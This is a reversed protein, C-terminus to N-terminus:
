KLFWNNEDMLLAEMRTADEGFRRAVKRAAYAPWEGRHRAVRILDFFRNGEFCTEAALEDVICDEVFAISDAKTGAEGFDPIIFYEKDYPVGNGRGRSASGVNNNFVDSTFDTWAEGREAQDVRTADELTTRNLGYKLVAFAMTPKGARNLAEALRLYVHPTRVVPQARLLVLAGGEVRNDPDQGGNVVDYNMNAFKYIYTNQVNNLRMEGYAGAVVGANNALVAQGRLDGELYDTVLQSGGSVFYMAHSQDDVFTQAPVLSPVDNYTWRRLDPHYALPDSSYVLASLVEETSFAVAALHTFRTFQTRAASAWMNANDSSMVLGRDEILRYYAAAAEEYRNLFLYLDGLLMDVPLFMKSTMYGDVNGYDLARVGVYPELDEVLLAALEELNKQPYDRLSAELSLVPEEIYSVRGAALALQWYTWARLVKIQAFEPLMVKDEYDVYSTDMRSIAYNCNNIVNYYDHFSAYANDESVEFNSIEQLDVDADATAEMLDGRLEGMLVYRDGLRQVQSLIGMVSYLSDNPSDLPNGEEFVVSTSDTEMMDTCAPFAMGLCLCAAWVTKMDSKIKM